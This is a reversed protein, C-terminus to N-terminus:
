SRNEGVLMWLRTSIKDLPLVECSGGNEYAAKPMGYIACTAEDQTITYAGINRLHLCEKAGDEGMGTLVVAICSSGFIKAASEFMKDVAPRLFNVPEEHSLLIHFGDVASPVFTLHEDSPAFYIHGPLPNLNNEALQVPVKAESSLWSILNKDFFSDIHQTIFIPIPFNQGIGKLFELLAEPGGTSVGVLVAKYERGIFSQPVEPLLGNVSGKANTIRNEPASYNNLLVNSKVDLVQQEFHEAYEKIKSSSFNVFDPLEVFQVHASTYTVTEGPAYFIISPTKTELCYDSLCSIREADFLTKNAIVLDPTKEKINKVLETYSVAEGTWELKGTNLIIEKLISRVVASSDAVIVHIM